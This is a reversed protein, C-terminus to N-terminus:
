RSFTSTKHEILWSSPNPILSDLNEMSLSAIEEADLDIHESEYLSEYDAILWTEFKKIQIVTRIYAPLPRLRDDQSCDIGQWSDIESNICRLLGRCDEAVGRKVADQLDVAVIITYPKWTLVLRTLKERLKQYIGGCGGANVRPIPFGQEDLIRTVLSPFCNYEGYGEVIFGIPPRCLMENDPM